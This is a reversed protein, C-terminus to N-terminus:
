RQLIQVEKKEEGGSDITNGMFLVARWRKKVKIVATLYIGGKEMGGERTGQM